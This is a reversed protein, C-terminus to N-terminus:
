QKIIICIWYIENKYDDVIKYTINLNTVYKNAHTIINHLFSTIDANYLHEKTTTNSLVITNENHIAFRSSGVTHKTWKIDEIFFGGVINQYRNLLRELLDSTSSLDSVKEHEQPEYHLLEYTLINKILISPHAIKNHIALLEEENQEISSMNNNIYTLLSPDPSKFKPKIYLKDAM